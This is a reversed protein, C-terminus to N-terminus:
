LAISWTSPPPTSTIENSGYRQRRQDAESSQLGRQQDSQLVSVVSEGSQAHWPTPSM